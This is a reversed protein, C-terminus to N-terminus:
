HLARAIVVPEVYAESTGASPTVAELHVAYIGLHLPRGHDDRGDWILEGSRGAPMGDELSRVLRGQQDFIRVRIISVDQLLRYQIAVHDDQGDGDPSFTSPMMSIGPDTHPVRGTVVTNVRGPTGGWRNPSSTWNDAQHSPATPSLRELAVGRDAGIDPHHWSPEYSVADLIGGDNRHLVIDDGQNSLNLSARHVPFLLVDSRAFDTDPFSRALLSETVPDDTANPQAFIVAFAQPKIGVAPASFHLTDARGQEDRRGTLFARSLSLLQGSANYLEVYEPQNPLADFDDALPAYMIENIVIAGPEPRHALPIRIHALRNGARDFVDAVAITRDRPPSDYILRLRNWPAVPEVHRLRSGNLDFSAQPLRLLDLPESFHLLIGNDGIVEAFLVQPAATDPAFVSNVDGPTAGAAATSPAFNSADSPGHPDIRELSRGDKSWSPEYRISDMVTTGSRYLIVVDGDNNLTPWPQPTLINSLSPFAVLMAERSRALVVFAGPPLLHAGDTLEVPGSRSDSVAVEHLDITRQSRNYVEVFELRGDNPAYHIENIVLGTEARLLGPTLVAAALFLPLLRLM